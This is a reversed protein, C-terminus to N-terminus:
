RDPQAVGWLLWVLSVFPWTWGIWQALGYFHIFRGQEWAQLSVSLYPDTPAATVLAILSTLVVLGLAANVRRPLLCALLGLASAILLGTWTGPTIWAWAHQPGFNMMTSCTTVVVGVVFGFLVLLIRRTGPRAVSLALLCPALLGLAIAVIELGPPLPLDSWGEDQTLAWPTDALASESWDRLRPLLQGLGLPLPAPFLLGVPWLALLALAGASHPVFWHERVLHWRRLGGFHHLVLGLMVGLWAGVSNLLWDALSPVRGPLFYQLTEMLFSLAPLALLGLAVGMQLSGGSRLVAALVLVGLPIYGLVNAWIDFWQWYHPWPLGIVGQWRMGPPLQWPWFPYLSAYVVLLLYSLVLWSASSRRRM